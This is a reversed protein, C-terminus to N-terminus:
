APKRSKLLAKAVKDLSQAAEMRSEPAQELAQGQVGPVTPTTAQQAHGFPALALALVLVLHPGSLRRPTAHLNMPVMCFQMSAGAGLFLIEYGSPIGMLERLLSDTEAVMGEIPKTRHSMELIGIGTGAFDAIAAAAEQTAQKPLVSPGASFNYVTKSM